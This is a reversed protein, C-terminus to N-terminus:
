SGLREPPPVVRGAAAFIGFVLLPILIGLDVGWNGPGLIGLLGLLLSGMLAFSFRGFATWFRNSGWRFYLGVGAVGGLAGAVLSVLNEAAPSLGHLAVLATGLGAALVGFLVFRLGHGVWRLAVGWLSGPRGAQGALWGAGFLIGIAAALFGAIGLLAMLAGKPGNNRAEPIVIALTILLVAILIPIEYRGFGREPDESPCPAPDIAM